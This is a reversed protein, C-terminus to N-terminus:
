VIPPRVGQPQVDREAVLEVLGAVDDRGADVAQVLGRRGGRRRAKGPVQEELLAAQHPAALGVQGRHDGLRQHVLRELDRDHHGVQVGIQHALGRELVLADREEGRHVGLGLVVDEHRVAAEEADHRLGEGGLPRQPRAHQLDDVRVGVDDVRPEGLARGGDDLDGAVHLRQGDGRGDQRAVVLELVRVAEVPGHEADLVAVAEDLVQRGMVRNEGRTVQHTAELHHRADEPEVHQLDSPTPPATGTCPAGAPTPPVCNDSLWCSRPRTTCSKSPFVSWPHCATGRSGTAAQGPPGAGSGPDGSYRAAALLTPPHDTWSPAMTPVWFGGPEPRPPYRSVSSRYPSKWSVNSTRGSQGASVPTSTRALSRPAWPNWTSISWRLDPPIPPKEPLPM